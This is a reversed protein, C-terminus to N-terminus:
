RVLVSNGSKILLKRYCLTGMIKLTSKSRPRMNTPKPSRTSGYKLMLLEGVCSTLGCSRCHHRSVYRDLKMPSPPRESATMNTDNMEVDPQAQSVNESTHAIIGDMSMTGEITGNNSSKSAAKGRQRLVADIMM